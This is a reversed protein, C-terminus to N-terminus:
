PTERDPEPEFYSANTASIQEITRDLRSLHRMGCAVAQEADHAKVAEAIARHDDILEPVRDVKSLSLTCLRDVKSKEAM